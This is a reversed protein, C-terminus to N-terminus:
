KKPVSYLQKTKTLEKKTEKIKDILMEYQRIRESIISTMPSEVRPKPKKPPAIHIIHHQDFPNELAIPEDAALVQAIQRHEQATKFANKLRCTLSKYFDPHNEGSRPRRKVLYRSRPKRSSHEALM